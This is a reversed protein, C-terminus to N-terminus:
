INESILINSNPTAHKQKVEEYIERAQVPDMSLTDDVYVGDLKVIYFITGRGNRFKELEIIM